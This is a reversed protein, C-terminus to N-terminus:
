AGHLNISDDDIMGDSQFEFESPHSSSSQNKSEAELEFFTRDVDNWADIKQQNAPRDWTAPSNEPDPKGFQVARKCTEPAIHFQNEQRSNRVM